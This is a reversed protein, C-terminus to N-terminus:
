KSASFIVEIARYYVTNTGIYSSCTGVILWLEGDANTSVKIPHPSTVNNVYVPTYDGEAYPTAFEGLVIVEDGVQDLNLTYRDDVIVKLPEISSAGAKIFVGDGGGANSIVNVGFVLRYQTNPILGSVKKKIFMLLDGTKNECTLKLSMGSGLYEPTAAKEASWQYYDDTNDVDAVPYGTYDATWGATGESFDYSVSFISFAQEAEPVCGSLLILILFSSLFKM